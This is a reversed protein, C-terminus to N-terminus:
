RGRIAYSRVQQRTVKPPSADKLHEAQAVRYAQLREAARLVGAGPVPNKQSRGFDGSSIGMLRNFAAAMAGILAANNM